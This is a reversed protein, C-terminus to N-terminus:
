EYREQAAVQQAKSKTVDDATKSDHCHRHLLQWNHYSDMGGRKRPLTHDVELLDGSHFYLGCWQCRGEQRHLLMAVRKSVNPHRGLRSSWYVWDGNYPSRVGQVKIHRKIHTDQHRYLKVASNKPQFVWGRGENIRWYKGIVWRMGKHPHRRIAWARFQQFLIHDLTSFTKNSCVTSYYNTWGRIVPNLERILGAQRGALHKKVVTRLRLAHKKVAEKSPRILTKFGLPKGHPNTGTKTKGVPYQRINFGLFNFGPAEDSQGLTHVVQTKSAKLQLGMPRLWETLFQQSNEVVERNVHMVVLDDAYRVVLAQDERKRTPSVSRKIAEELGHLAVNALLCSLTGGQPVGEETPYLQDGDMVGAKLWARIQRRLQPYTNLKKLLETHKIRDYCKEIDADLVWKPKFIVGNYIAAIADWGSRGPRFGYSNPEIPYAGDRRTILRM